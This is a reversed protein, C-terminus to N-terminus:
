LELPLRATVVTPGGHPSSISLTGDVADLRDRLGRLGTGTGGGVPGPRAGGRGDDRVRLCLRAPRGVDGPETALDVRVTGAGSHKAANALLEAVCFYVIREIAPSPRVPLDVHVDAPIGADAALTPLAEPLGGDLAVPNIGRTLRRLETTADALQQRARGVLERTRGADGSALAEDALGLSLAIAVLRAQTGDHLAREIRRLTATADAAVESRARELRELRPSAPPPSLLARVLWRNLDATARTTWPALALLLVGAAFATLVWWWALENGMFLPSVVPTSALFAGYFWVFAGGAFTLVAVPLRVLLYLVTRWGTGDTLGARVWALPGSGATGAAASLPPPEAVDEDLWRRAAARHVTGLHRAIRLGGAVLPLGVITLALLGGVYLLLAVFAGCAVALPLGAVAFAVDGARVHPRRLIRGTM